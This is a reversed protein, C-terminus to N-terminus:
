EDLRTREIIESIVSESGHKLAVRIGNDDVRAYIKQYVCQMAILVRYDHETMKHLEEIVKGIELEAEVWIGEHDQYKKYRFVGAEGDYYPHIYVVFNSNRNVIWLCQNRYLIEFNNVHISEGFRLVYRISRYLRGEDIYKRYPCRLEVVMEKSNEPVQYKQCQEERLLRMENVPYKKLRERVSREVYVMWECHKKVNRWLAPFEQPYIRREEISIHEPECFRQLCADIYSCPTSKLRFIDQLAFVDAPLTYQKVLRETSKWSMDKRSIQFRLRQEMSGKVLEIDLAHKMVFPSKMWRVVEMPIRENKTFDIVQIEGDDVAYGMLLVQFDEAEVHAKKGYKELSKSSYTIVAISLHESRRM